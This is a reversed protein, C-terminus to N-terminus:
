INVAARPRSKNVRHSATSLEEAQLCLYAGWQCSVRTIRMLSSQHIPCSGVVEQGRSAAVNGTQWECVEACWVYGKVSAPMSLLRAPCLLLNVVYLVKWTKWRSLSRQLGRHNWAASYRYTTHQISDKAFSMRMVTVTAKQSRFTAMIQLFFATERKTMELSQLKQLSTHMGQLSIYTTSLHYSALLLICVCGIPYTIAQYSLILHV